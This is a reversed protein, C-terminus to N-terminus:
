RQDGLWLCFALRWDSSCIHEAWALGSPRVTVARRRSSCSIPTAPIAHQTAIKARISMVTMGPPLQPLVPLRGAHLGLDVRASSVSGIEMKPATRNMRRSTNEEARIRGRDFPTDPTPADLAEVDLGKLLPPLLTKVGSALM